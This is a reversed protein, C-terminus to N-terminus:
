IKVLEASINHRNVLERTFKMSGRLVFIKFIGSKLNAVTDLVKWKNILKRPETTRRSIEFYARDGQRNKATADPIFIDDEKQSVLRAPKELDQFDAKIETFGSKEINDIVKELTEEYTDKRREKLM